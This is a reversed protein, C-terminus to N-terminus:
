TIYGHSAGETQSQREYNYQGNSHGRGERLLSGGEVTQGRRPPLRRGSWVPDTLIARPGCGRVRVRVRAPVLFRPALQRRDRVLDAGRRVRIIRAHPGSLANVSVNSRATM